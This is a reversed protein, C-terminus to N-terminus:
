DGLERLFELMAGNAVTKNELPALHGAEPIMVLQSGPIRDAMAFSDAAPIMQDDAGTMVLTPVSIRALESSRDPRVALGRLTNALGRPNSRLAREGVREVLEPHNMYTSPAFLKPLMSDVVPDPKGTAELERALDERVKATAPADATARTNMLILGRLRDPYRLALSLAVYGGMSLGGIVVPDDLELADLTDIVDDAMLDVTYVGDPAATSGSGRLDPAIVRYISGVEALQFEWMSRDLPFGHLLVLVPGPGVDDFALLM